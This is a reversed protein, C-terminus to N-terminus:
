GPQFTRWRVQQRRAFVHAIEAHEAASQILLDIPILHGAADGNRELTPTAPM